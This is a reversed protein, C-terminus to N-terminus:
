ARGNDGDAVALVNEYAFVGLEAGVTENESNTVSASRQSTTTGSSARVQRGTTGLGRRIM